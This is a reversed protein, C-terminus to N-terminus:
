DGGRELEVGILDLMRKALSEDTVAVASVPARGIATGLTTRDGLVAHPIPHQKIAKVVKDKQVSSADGALLVLRAEGQRIARRTADTGSAVRGARRALGLLSFVRPRRMGKM